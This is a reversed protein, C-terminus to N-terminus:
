EGQKKDFYENIIQQITQSVNDDVELVKKYIETPLYIQISPM